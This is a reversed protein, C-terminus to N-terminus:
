LGKTKDDNFGSTLIAGVLLVISSIVLWFVPTVLIVELKRFLFDDLRLLIGVNYM